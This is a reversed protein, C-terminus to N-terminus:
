LITHRRHLACFSPGPMVLGFWLMTVINMVRSQKYPQAPATARKWSASLVDKVSLRSMIAVEATKRATPASISVADCCGGLARRTWSRQPRSPVVTASAHMVSITAPIAGFIKHAVSTPAAAPQRTRMVSLFFGYRLALLSGRVLDGFKPQAGLRKGLDRSTSAPIQHAYLLFLAM